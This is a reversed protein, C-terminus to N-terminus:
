RLEALIDGLCQLDNRAAPLDNLCHALLERAACALRDRLSRRGEMDRRTSKGPRVEERHDQKLLESLVLGEVALALAVRPLANFEADGGQGVLHAGARRNQLRQMSKDFGVNQRGLTQMTVVGRHRYEGLAFGRRATDTRINAVVSGKVAACWRRREVIGRPIASTFIRLMVKAIKRANQLSIGIAAVVAEVLRRASGTCDRRCKAPRMGPALKEFEGVDCGIASTAFICGRDRRDRQFCHLANISQELDLARNITKGGGFPELNAFFSARGEYGVHLDPQSM